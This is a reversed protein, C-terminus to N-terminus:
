FCKLIEEPPLFCDESLGAVNFVIDDIKWAEEVRTRSHMGATDGFRFVTAVSRGHHAVMIGDAERYDELTSGITTEWYVAASGAVQVRTLQSDELYMLLGNKQSFYGYLVHRIVETPGDNRKSIAARDATAKLVFCDEDGVRKEGLCRSKSFMLATSRPDLGQIIRRLPRHPGRAAHTGLWPLHRWVIKGDSGAVVRYGAVVLEVLWRGPSKQWVVFCGTESARKIHGESEGSGCALRMSGSAYMSKMSNQLKLCGTSALFQQIIYKASSAEIPTNKISIIDHDDTESTLPIPALPCGLVGLVLRLNRQTGKDTHARFWTKVLHWSNEKRAKHCDEHSEPDPDETLPTLQHQQQMCFMDAPTKTRGKPVM